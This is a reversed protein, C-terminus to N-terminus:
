AKQLFARGEGESGVCRLFEQWVVRAHTPNKDKKKLSDQTKTTLLLDQYYESAADSDLFNQCDGTEAQVDLLPALKPCKM